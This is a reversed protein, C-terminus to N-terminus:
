FPSAEIRRWRESVARTTDDHEFDSADFLVLRWYLGGCLSGLAV